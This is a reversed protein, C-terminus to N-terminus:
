MVGDALGRVIDDQDVRQAGAVLQEGLADDQVPPHQKVQRTRAFGNQVLMKGDDVGDDRAIGIRRPPRRFRMDVIDGHGDVFRSARALPFEHGAKAPDLALGRRLVAPGLGPFGLPSAMVEFNSDSVVFVADGTASITGASLRAM